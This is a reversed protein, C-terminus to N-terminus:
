SDVPCSFCLDSRNKLSREMRVKRILQDDVKIESAHRGAYAEDPTLGNLVALPKNQNADEFFFDVYKKLQNVTYINKRLLFQHKLQKFVSEVMSNSQQIDVSAQLRTLREEKLFTTIHSNFNETGGDTILKPHEDRLQRNIAAQEM